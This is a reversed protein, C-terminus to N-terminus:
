FCTLVRNNEFGNVSYRTVGNYNTGFINNYVM